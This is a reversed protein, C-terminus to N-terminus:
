RNTPPPDPRVPEARRKIEYDLSIGAPAAIWEGDRLIIDCAADRTSVFGSALPEGPCDGQVEDSGFSRIEYHLGDSSYRLANGWRDLLWDRHHAPISGVEVLNAGTLPYTGHAHRYIEISVALGEIRGVTVKQKTTNLECGTTVVIMVLLIAARVVVHDWL